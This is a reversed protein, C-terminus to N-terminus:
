QGVVVDGARLGSVVEVRDSGRIGITVTVRKELTGDRVVVFDREGFKRIAEPPLWLANERREIIISLKGHANPALVYGKDDVVTFRTSQDIDNVAGGNKGYPAPLRRIIAVLVLDPREVPRIEVSQGESLLKMVDAGLMAQYEMTSPDAIEVLPSFASVSNGALLNSSAVTGDRPAVLRGGDVDKQAKDFARQASDLTRQETKFAESEALELELEATELADRASELEPNEQGNLLEDRVRRAEVVAENATDISTANTEKARTFARQAAPVAREASRLADTAAIFAKEYNRKGEDNLVNPVKKMNFWIFPELPDTGYRKVWDMHWYAKSYALQADVLANTATTIAYEADEVTVSGDEQTTRAAIIKADLDKQAAKLLDKTGGPLLAELQKRATAVARRRLVVLKGNAEKAKAFENQAIDLEDAAKRLAEDAETQQLLALVDGSKVVDGTKVTVEAVVGDRGFGIRVSDVPTTGVTDNIVREVTGSAVTFTPEDLTPDAPIATPTATATTDASACGVLVVSLCGLALLQVLRQKM